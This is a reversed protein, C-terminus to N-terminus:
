RMKKKLVITGFPTGPGCGCGTTGWQQANADAVCCADVNPYQRDAVAIAPMQYPPDLASAPRPCSWSSGTLQARTAPSIPPLRASETRIGHDDSVDARSRLIEHRRLLLGTRGAGIGAGHPRVTGCSHENPDILPALAIPCEIAPDLRIRLERVLDLDPRFGTAVVLEDVVVQRACCGDGAGVLLRPGDAALHTVRFESEVAIHGAAVLAAFASWRAAHPLNTAPAAALLRPRIM